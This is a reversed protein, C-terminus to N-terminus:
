RAPLRPASPDRRQGGPLRVLSPPRGPTPRIEDTLTRITTTKGAGNPGLFGFIGRRVELDLDQLARVDGYHKTLGLTHIAPDM